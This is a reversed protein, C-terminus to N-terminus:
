FRIGGWLQIMNMRQEMTTTVGGSTSEFKPKTLIYSAGVVFTNGIDVGASAGYALGKGNQAEIKQSFGPATFTMEPSKAFIYGAQADVFIGIPSSMYLRVGAMPLIGTYSGLSTSVGPGGGVQKLIEEENLKNFMYRGDVVVGLGPMLSFMVEAGGFFGQKAFGAENGDTKGFDGTPLTLGGFLMLGGRNQGVAPTSLAVFLVVVLVSLTLPRM